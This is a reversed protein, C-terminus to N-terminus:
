YNAKFRLGVTRPRALTIRDGAQYIQYYTARGINTIKVGNTLNTGYLGGEYRGWQYVIAASLDKSEPIVAYGASPGTKTLVGNTITTSYNNFRTQESGRYSFAGQLHLIGDAVPQDYYLAGSVIWNPFYPTQDGDFAGVTPINGNAQADNYSLSNTLTLQETLRINSELEVGKSTVSGKNDTFFYSCNLALRTQVDSRFLM